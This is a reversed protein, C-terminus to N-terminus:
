KCTSRGFSDYDYGDSLVTPITVWGKFIGYALICYFVINGILNEFWNKIRRFGKYRFERKYISDSEHLCQFASILQVLKLM